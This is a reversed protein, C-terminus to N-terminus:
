PRPDQGRGLRQPLHRTKEEEGRGGGGTKEESTDPVGEGGPRCRGAGEGAGHGLRLALSSPGPGPGPRNGPGLTAIHLMGDAPPPKPSRGDLPFLPDRVM